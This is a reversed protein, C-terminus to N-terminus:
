YWHPDRNRDAQQVNSTLNSGDSHVGYRGMVYHMSAAINAVPDYIAASTGSIHHSAFTDPICQAIGRSCHLPSGDSQIPGYANGDYDNIANPSGSSERVCLTGYGSVWHEAPVNMAACAQRTWSATDGDGRFHGYTVQGIDISGGAVVPEGGPHSTSTGSGPIHLVQGPVIHDPDTVQPNAAELVGLDLNHADAIGSKTDGHQVVYTVLHPLVSVPPPDEHGRGSAPIHILENVFILNPNPIQPNAAELASLSIEYRDAIASLTDGPRARYDM